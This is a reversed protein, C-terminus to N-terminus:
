PWRRPKLSPHSRIGVAPSPSWCCSPRRSPTSPAKFTNALFNRKWRPWSNEPSRESSPTSRKKDLSHSHYVFDRAPEDCFTVDFTQVQYTASKATPIQAMPGLAVWAEKPQDWAQIKLEKCLNFRASLLGLWHMGAARIRAIAPNSVMATDAIYYKDKWFDEPFDKVLQNVWDANWTQDSTNGSLMTGGIICGEADMTVGAMIRKLDSRHDKSHGWVIEIPARPGSPASPYDGM